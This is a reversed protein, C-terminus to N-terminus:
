SDTEVTDIPSYTRLKALWEDMMIFPSYSNAAALEWNKIDKELSKQREQLETWLVKHARKRAMLPANKCHRGIAVGLCIPTGASNDWEVKSYAAVDDIGDPMGLPKELYVTTTSAYPTASRVKLPNSAHKTAEPFNDIDRKLADLGRMIKFIPDGEHGTDCPIVVWRALFEEGFEVPVHIRSGATRRPAPKEPTVPDEAREKGKDEVQAQHTPVEEPWDDMAPEEARQTGMDKGHGQRSTVEEPREPEGNDLLEEFTVPVWPPPFRRLSQFSTDQARVPWRSGGGQGSNSGVRPDGTGTGSRKEERNM